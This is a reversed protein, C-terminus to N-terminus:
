HNNMNLHFVIKGLLIKVRKESINDLLIIVRELAKLAFKNPLREIFYLGSALGGFLYDFNKKM